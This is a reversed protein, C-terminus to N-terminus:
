RDIGWSKLGLGVSIYSNIHLCMGVYGGTNRGMNERWAGGEGARKTTYLDGHMHWTTKQDVM